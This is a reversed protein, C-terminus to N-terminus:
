VMWLCLTNSFFLAEWISLSYQLRFSSTCLLFCSPL